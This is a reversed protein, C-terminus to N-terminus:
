SKGELKNMKGVIDWAASELLIIAKVLRSTNTKNGKHSGLESTALHILEDASDIYGTIRRLHAIKVREDITM